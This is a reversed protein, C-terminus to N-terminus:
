PKPLIADIDTAAVLYQGRRYTRGTLSSALRLMATPTWARNPKMGTTAYMRLAQRLVIAQYVRVQDPGNFTTM